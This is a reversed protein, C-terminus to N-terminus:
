LASKNGWGLHHESRLTRWSGVQTTGLRTRPLSGILSASVMRRECEREGIVVNEWFNVTPRASRITMRLDSPAWAEPHITPLGSAIWMLPFDCRPSQGPPHDLIRRESRYIRGPRWPNVSPRPGASVRGIPDGRVRFCGWVSPELPQAARSAASEFRAREGAEGASRRAPWSGFACYPGQRRPEHEDGGPRARTEGARRAALASAAGASHHRELAGLGAASGGLV